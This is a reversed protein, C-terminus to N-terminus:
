GKPTGHVARWQDWLRKFATLEIPVFQLSLSEQDDRRDRRFFIAGFIFFM